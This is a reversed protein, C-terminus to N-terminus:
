LINNSVSSQTEFNGSDYDGQWSLLTITLGIFGEFWDRIEVVLNSLCFWKVEVVIWLISAM